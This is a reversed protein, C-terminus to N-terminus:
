ASRATAGVMWCAGELHAEGGSVYPEFATRVTEIVKERVAGEVTQLALGVPGVSTAYRTLESEPMTCVANVPQIDIESWGSEKLLAAVRDRDALAFRGPEGPRNVPLNPLLPAVAEEAAVM